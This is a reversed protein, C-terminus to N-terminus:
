QQFEDIIKGQLNYVIVSVKDGDVNVLSFNYEPVPPIDVDKKETYGNYVPAGFTGTTIQYVWQKFNFSQGSITESFDQNIHRRTYNHEHGCFVMPGKSLDIIEWLKDRQVKDADLSSGVHSGTPYAPEHFFYFNHKITDSENSKIWKIQQDSIIHEQGPHNSNLMYFRSNNKDYYYVTNYYGELFDAKIEPFVEQFAQEGKEGATAEHNGFGPYFFDIPYYETVISKFNLLQEKVTGYNESGDVLDGPMVAFLPQPNIKKICKMTKTIAEKNIGADTGRSDAM